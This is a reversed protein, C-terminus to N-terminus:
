AFCPGAFGDSAWNPCAAGVVVGRWVAGTCDELGAKGTAAFAALASWLAGM